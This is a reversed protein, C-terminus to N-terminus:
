KTNERNIAVLGKIEFLCMVSYGFLVMLWAPYKMSGRGACLDVIVFFATLFMVAIIYLRSRSVSATARGPVRTRVKYNAWYGIVLGPFIFHSALDHRGTFFYYLCVGFLMRSIFYSIYVPFTLM